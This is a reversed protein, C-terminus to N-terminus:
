RFAHLSENRAAVLIRIGSKIRILNAREHIRCRGFAGANRKPGLRGLAQRADNAVQLERRRLVFARKDDDAGVLRRTIDIVRGAAGEERSIFASSSSSSYSFKTAAAVRRDLLGCNLVM